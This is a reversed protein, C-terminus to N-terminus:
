FFVIKGDWARLSTYFAHMFYPIDIAIQVHGVNRRQQALAAVHGKGKVAGAHNDRASRVDRADRSLLHLVRVDNGVVLECRAADHQVVKEGCELVGRRVVPAAAQQREAVAFILVAAHKDVLVDFM